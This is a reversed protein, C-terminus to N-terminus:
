DVFILPNSRILEFTFKDPSSTSVALSDFLAKKNFSIISLSFSPTKDFYLLIKISQGGDKLRKVIM